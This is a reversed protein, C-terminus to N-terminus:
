LKTIISIDPLDESSAASYKITSHQGPIESAVESVKNCRDWWFYVQLLRLKGNTNASSNMSASSLEENQDAGADESTLNSADRISPQSFTNDAAYSPNDKGIQRLQLDRSSGDQQDSSSMREASIRVSLPTIVAPSWCLLSLYVPMVCLGHLVSCAKHARPSTEKKWGRM